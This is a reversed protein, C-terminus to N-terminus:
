TISQIVSDILSSAYLHSSLDIPLTHFIRFIKHDMETYYAHKRVKM